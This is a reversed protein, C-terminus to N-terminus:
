DRIPKIVITSLPPLTLSISLPRDNWGIEEASMFGETKRAM